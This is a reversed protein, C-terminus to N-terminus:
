SNNILYFTGDAQKARRANDDDAVQFAFPHVDLLPQLLEHRNLTCALLIPSEVCSFRSFSALAGYKLLLEAVHLHGPTDGEVAISLATCRRSPSVANPAAGSELLFRAVNVKGHQAAVMLPTLDTYCHVVDIPIHNDNVMTTVTGLYGQEIAYFLRETADNMHTARWALGDSTRKKLFTRNPRYDAYGHKNLPIQTSRLM